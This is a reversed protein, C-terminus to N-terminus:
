RSLWHRLALPLYDIREQFLWMNIVFFACYIAGRLVLIAVFDFESM